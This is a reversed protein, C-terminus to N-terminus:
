DAEYSARSILATRFVAARQEWKDNARGEYAVYLVTGNETQPVLFMVDNLLARMWGLDVPLAVGSWTRQCVSESNTSSVFCADYFFHKNMYFEENCTEM